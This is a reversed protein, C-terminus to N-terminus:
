EDYEGSYLNKARIYDYVAPEVWTSIDEGGYANQRIDTSSIILPKLCVIKCRGRYRFFYHLKRWILRLAMRKDRAATVITAYKFIQRPFHWQDLTLFMDSGCIFYLEDAPYQGNLERLTDCTYSPGTRRLEMDSIEYGPFALRTMELRDLPLNDAVEKHPPISAPIIIIRDFEIKRSIEKLLLSHGKHPPNFTGGFIGIRM